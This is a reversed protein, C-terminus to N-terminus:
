VPEVKSRIMLLHPIGDEDFPDGHTEFGLEHYFNELYVQAHIRVSPTGIAKLAKRVLTRGYGRGRTEPHTAIRGLVVQSGEWYWRSCAVLRGGSFGLLHRSVPDKGDVDQYLCKQEVVFVLSRLQLLDHLERTTLSDFPKTVFSVRPHM